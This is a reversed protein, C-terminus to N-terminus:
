SFSVGKARKHIAGSAGSGRDLRREHFRISSLRQRREGISTGQCQNSSQVGQEQEGCELIM